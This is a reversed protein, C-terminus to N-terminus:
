TWRQSGPFLSVTTWMGGAMVDKGTLKKQSPGRGHPQRPWQVWKDIALTVDLGLAFLIETKFEFELFSELGQFNM